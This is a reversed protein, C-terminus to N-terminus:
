QSNDKHNYQGTHLSFHMVHPLRGVCEVIDIEGCGPWRNGERIDNPLMWVAPWAGVGKPM